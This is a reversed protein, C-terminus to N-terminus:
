KHPKGKAPKKAPAPPDLAALQADFWALNGKWEAWDPHEAVLGAIIARGKTLADRAKEPENSKVFTDGLRGYSVSLDRQWDANGADSSSLRERIALGARYSKLAEALNGQKVLVDGIKNESVSLDRQWDANGADSSSLREAIALGARYSKLAEVLNGQKVLVDAIKEYSISLDRQWETNGADSSSLREVIANDLRYSKLAEALNGQKVLVDAIKEYSISLDRQWDANGADSSSLREAIALGARYSKLAEALNGQKVLVDGIKNYSVSLDRQWDANGADSSSLREVIANDLRYSKLAEALNGQKVLVDAIKEYSISLDRQWETNGADSSSLRERITLSARYSKLAEALNGQKVLVDGVRDYSVSLDRQWETNGADSSSLREAIALGARYSKLAEALNGQKVLVDGIKNESVSLDRQWDANGADSSSLHEVAKRAEGYVALADPLKGRAVYIDGLGTRAWFLQNEDAGKGDLRLLARYSKEAAALHKAKLQLWGDWYLGEPNDPDLAAAKSYAERAKWPEHLLAIAGLNRWAVAADKSEQAVRAKDKAILASKDAAYAELLPTAEVVKGSHLLDLAQQLRTDGSSAGQAISDAVRNLEQAQGPAAQAQTALIGALMKKIEALEKERAADHQVLKVVTEKTGFHEVSFVGAASVAVAFAGAGAGIWAARKRTERVHRMWLDDFPLGTLGAVIKILARPKGDKAVDGAVDDARAGTAAGGLGIQMRLAPAFCEPPAGEVILPLVFGEGRLAKFQRIEADVYASKASAKSAIVILFQSNKLAAVTQEQLSGAAFEARDRFIPRLHSPVPGAATILRALAPDIRFRELGKHLWDCWSQDRHSYSIFARYPYFSPETM